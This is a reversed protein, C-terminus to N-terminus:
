RSSGECITAIQERATIVAEIPPSLEIAAHNLFLARAHRPLADWKDPGGAAEIAAALLDDKTTM